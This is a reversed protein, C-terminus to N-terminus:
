RNKAEMSNEFAKLYPYITKFVAEEVQYFSTEKGYGFDTKAGNTIFLIGSKKDKEFYMDSLLGYAIGPHGVMKRDPFLVDGKEKNLTQHTGFGYSLFFNDWTDGNTGNYNWHSKLMLEVTEKELIQRNNYRGEQMFMKVFAALDTASARLSGQPGFILGNQGLQYGDYARSQPVLGNYDDAQPLWKGDNYRYLVALSDVHTLKAVKFDATLGMPTFIKTRCYDDFRQQVVKEIVSAILGWTCNTYSFYAGPPYEAFQDDTFHSGDPLFLNKIDLKEAVMDKSFTGYGTGDRIGSQHSLLHRLTIPVEPFKPHKLPWGLYTSVDADLDVRGDQWLQLLAAATITKSISAIRYITNQAIPINRSVDAKGYHGEWVTEGGSLLIVSMGMLENKAFVTDLEDHLSIFHNQPGDSTKQKKDSCSFFLTGSLLFGCFCRLFLSM